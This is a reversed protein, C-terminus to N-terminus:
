LTGDSRLKEAFAAGSATFRQQDLNIDWRQKAEAVLATGIGRRQYDLRVWVNVNGATEWVNPKLYGDYYNLIGVLAGRKNRYLLCHVIGYDTEGAFYGIGPEGDRPYQTAQSEWSFHLHDPISAQFTM